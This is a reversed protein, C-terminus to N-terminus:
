YAPRGGPSQGQTGPVPQDPVGLLCTGNAQMVYGDPCPTKAAQERLAEWAEKVLIEAAKEAGMSVLAYCGARVLGPARACMDLSPSPTEPTRSQDNLGSFGGVVANLENATLPRM